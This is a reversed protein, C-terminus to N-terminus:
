SYKLRLLRANLSRSSASIIVPYGSARFKNDVGTTKLERWILRLSYSRMRGLSQDRAELMAFFDDMM